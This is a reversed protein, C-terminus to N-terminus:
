FSQAAKHKYTEIAVLNNFYVRVSAPRGRALRRIAKYIAVVKIDFVEAKILPGSKIRSPSPARPHREM